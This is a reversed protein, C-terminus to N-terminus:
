FADNLEEAEPEQGDKLLSLIDLERSAKELKKIREDATPGLVYWANNGPDNEPYCVVDIDGGTYEFCFDKFDAEEAILWAQSANEAEIDVFGTWDVYVTYKM